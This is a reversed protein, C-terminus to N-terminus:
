LAYYIGPSKAEEYSKLTALANKLKKKLIENRQREIQLERSLEAKSKSPAMCFVPHNFISVSSPRKDPNPHTM